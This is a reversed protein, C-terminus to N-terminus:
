GRRRCPRPLWSRGAAPSAGARSTLPRRVLFPAASPAKTAQPQVGHDVDLDDRRVGVAVVEAEQRDTTQEENVRACGILKTTNSRKGTEYAVARVM